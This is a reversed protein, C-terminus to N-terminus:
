APIAPAIEEIPASVINMTAPKFLGFSIGSDAKPIDLTKTGTRHISAIQFFSLAQTKDQYSISYKKNLRSALAEEEQGAAIVGNATQTAIDANVENWVMNLVDAKEQALPDDIMQLRMISEECKSRLKSDPDILEKYAPRTIMYKSLQTQLTILGM